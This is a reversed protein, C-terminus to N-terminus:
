WGAAPAPRNADLWAQKDAVKFKDRDDWGEPRERGNLGKEGDLDEHTRLTTYDFPTNENGDNENGEAKPKDANANFGKPATGEVPKGGKGIVNGQEDTGFSVVPDVVEGSNVADQHARVKKRDELKFM